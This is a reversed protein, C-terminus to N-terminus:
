SLRLVKMKEDCMLPDNAACTSFPQKLWEALPADVRPHVLHESVTTRRQGAVKRAAPLRLRQELFPTAERGRGADSERIDGAVNKAILATLLASEFVYNYGLTGTIQLACRMNIRGAEEGLKVESM